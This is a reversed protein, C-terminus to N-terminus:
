CGMVNWAAVEEDVDADVVAVVTAAATVWVVAAVGADVVGVVTAVWTKPLWTM